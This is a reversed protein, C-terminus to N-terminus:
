SAPMLVSPRLLLYTVEDSADDLRLAVRVHRQLDDWVEVVEGPLMESAGWPVMVSDGVRLQQEAKTVM